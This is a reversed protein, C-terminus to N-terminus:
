SEKKKKDYACKRKRHLTSTWAFKVLTNRATERENTVHFTNLYIYFACCDTSLSTVTFSLFLFSSFCGLSKVVFPFISMFFMCYCKYASHSVSSSFHSCKSVFASFVLFIVQRFRNCASLQFFLVFCFYTTIIRSDLLKKHRQEVALHFFPSLRLSSYKTWQYSHSHTGTYVTCALAIPYLLKLTEWTSKTIPKSLAFSVIISKSQANMKISM